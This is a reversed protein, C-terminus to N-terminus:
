GIRDEPFKPPPLESTLATLIKFEGLAHRTDQTQPYLAKITSELKEEEMDVVRLRPPLSRQHRLHELTSEYDDLQDQLTEIILNVYHQTM